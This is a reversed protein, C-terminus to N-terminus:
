FFKVGLDHWRRARPAGIHFYTTIKLNRFRRRVMEWGSVMLGKSRDSLQEVVLSPEKACLRLRQGQVPSSWARMSGAM